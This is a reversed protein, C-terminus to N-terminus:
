MGNEKRPKTEACRRIVQELPKSPKQVKKLLGNMVNEFPIALINDLPGHNRADDGLHIV